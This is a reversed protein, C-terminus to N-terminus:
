NDQELAYASQWPSILSFNGEWNPSVTPAAAINQVKRQMKQHKGDHFYLCNKTNKGKLFTQSAKRSDKKQDVKPNSARVASSFKGTQDSCYFFMKFSVSKFNKPIQKLYFYLITLIDLDACVNLDRMLVFFCFVRMYILRHLRWQYLILKLFLILQCNQGAAFYISDEILFKQFSTSFSPPQNELKVKIRHAM